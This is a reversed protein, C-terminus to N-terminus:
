RRKFIRKNYEGFDLVREIFEKETVLEYPKGKVDLDEQLFLRVHLDTTKLKLFNLLYLATKGYETELAVYQMNEVSWAMLYVKKDSKHVSPVVLPVECEQAMKEVFTKPEKEWEKRYEAYMEKAQVESMGHKEVLSDIFGEIPVGLEFGFEGYVEFIGKRMGIIYNKVWRKLFYEVYGQKFGENPMFEEELIEDWTKKVSEMNLIFSRKEEWSLEDVTKESSKAYKVMEDYDIEVDLKECLKAEQIM